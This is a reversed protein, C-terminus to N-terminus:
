QFIKFNSALLKLTGNLAFPSYFLIIQSACEDNKCGKEECLAVEFLNWAVSSPSM